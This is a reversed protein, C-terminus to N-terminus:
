DTSARTRQSELSANFDPQSNTTNAHTSGAVGLVTSDTKLSQHEIAANRAPEMNVITGKEISPPSKTAVVPFSAFGSIVLCFQCYTICSGCYTINLSM